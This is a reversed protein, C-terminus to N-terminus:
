EGTKILKKLTGKTGKALYVGSPLHQVHNTGKKLTGWNKGSLDILWFVEDSDSVELFLEAGFPNPYVNTLPNNPKTISLPEPGPLGSSEVIISFDRSVSSLKYWEGQIVRWEHVTVSVCYEGLLAPANWSLVGDSSIEFIPPGSQNEDGKGFNFYFEPSDPLRYNEVEMNRSMKPISLEYSLSDGDKDTVALDSQYHTFTVAYFVPDSGFVPSNNHGVFPDLIITAEIYFPTDVSSDMNMVNANRNQENYSIQYRGPFAYTYEFEFEYYGVNESILTFYPEDVLDWLEFTHGDGMDIQGGGFDVSSRLDSYGTVTIKHSLTSNSTKEIKIQGGRLHTASAILPFWLITLFLCIRSTM